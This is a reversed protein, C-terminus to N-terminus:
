KVHLVEKRKSWEKDIIDKLEPLLPFNSREKGLHKFFKKQKAPPTSPDEWKLAEKILPSVMAFDFGRIDEENVSEDNSYDLSAVYSRGIFVSDDTLVIIKQGLDSSRM